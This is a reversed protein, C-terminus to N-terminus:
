PSVGNDPRTSREKVTAARTQCQRLAADRVSPFRDIDTHPLFLAATYESMYAPDANLELYTMRDALRNVNARAARECLIARAGTLAANGLYTFRELPLDPLLGIAISKRLDLFRGFGGAVYVEAVADFDLPNVILAGRGPALTCHSVQLGGLNGVLVTLRGEVLLGNLM